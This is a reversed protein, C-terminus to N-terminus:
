DRQVRQVLGVILAVFVLVPMAGVPVSDSTDDTSGDDSPESSPHIVSGDSKNEDAVDSHDTENDSGNEADTQNGDDISNTDEDSEGSDGDGVTGGGSEDGGGTTIALQSGDSVGLVEPKGEVQETGQAVAYVAYTEGATLEATSVTARYSSGELRTASERVVTEGNWVAVEVGAPASTAATATATVDIAAVSDNTNVSTPHETTMEYGGVVIPLYDVYNGDIYLTAAYTGPELAGTEFTVRTDGTGDASLEVQEDANYLDVAYETGAPASVDITLTSGHETHALASVAYETGDITVTRTPTEIADPSSLTADSTPIAAATVGLPAVVSGTLTVFVLGLVM